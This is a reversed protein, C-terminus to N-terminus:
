DREIGAKRIWGSVVKDEPLSSDLPVLAWSFRNDGPHSAGSNKLEDLLATKQKNINEVATDMSKKHYNGRIKEINGLRIDLEQIQRKLRDERGEDWFPSSANVLSLQLKGAYMGNRYSELIPTQREWIPSQIYGGENGGLVFHIGSVAKVVERESYQDLASLLVIVDARGRLKNIMTRATEAPDQVLFKESESKPIAPNIAPSLLGFFAITSKNVKKIIYPRFIPSRSTPDVLNSSILPIGRSAESRLFTLGQVLDLAGVNIAAVGMRKCVRSILQAKTLSRQHDVGERVDTFLNGSDVVLVPRGEDKLKEVLSVRRAQGGLV